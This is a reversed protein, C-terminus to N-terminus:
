LLKSDAIQQIHQMGAAIVTDDKVVVATGGTTDIHPYM